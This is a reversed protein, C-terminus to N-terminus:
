YKWLNPRKERINMQLPRGKEKMNRVKLLGASKRSFYKIFEEMDKKFV